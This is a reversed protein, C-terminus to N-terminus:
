EVRDVAVPSTPMDTNFLTLHTLNELKLLHDIGPDTINAGWLSLKVLDSMGAIVALDDNGTRCLELDVAVM